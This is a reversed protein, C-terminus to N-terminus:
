RIQKQLFNQLMVEFKVIKASFQFVHRAIQIYNMTHINFLSVNGRLSSKPELILDRQYEMQYGKNNMKLFCITVASHLHFRMLSHRLVFENRHLNWKVREFRLHLNKLLLILLWVKKDNLLYILLLVIVSQQLFLRM